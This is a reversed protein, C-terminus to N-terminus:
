LLQSKLLNSGLVTLCAKLNDSKQYHALENVVVTNVSSFFPFFTEFDEGNNQNKFRQQNNSSLMHLASDYEKTQILNVYATFQDYPSNVNNTKVQACSTLFFVIFICNILKM